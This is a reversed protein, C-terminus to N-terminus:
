KLREWARIFFDDAGFNGSKLAMALPRRDGRSLVWPVGPDIEPGIEFAKVGLAGVVAGSTEGGAVIFRTFGDGALRTAVEALFHEVTEGARDRGLAEQTAKVSAPDATSYVLPAGDAARVFDVAADVTTRGDAIAVPDLQMAPVGRAIATEVQRRTQQSCSGSLIVSRGAPANLAPTGTRRELLGARRFNEPLGIAVGSGGTVLKLSAVAEGIARLDADSVADVIVIGRRGKLAEAIAAAGASVVRLPILSVERKTQRGLVRVLDSDRM